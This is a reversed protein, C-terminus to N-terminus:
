EAADLAAAQAANLKRRAAERMWGGVSLRATDAAETVAAALSPGMLVIVRETLSEQDREPIADM